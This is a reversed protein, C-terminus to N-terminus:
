VALALQRVLQTSPKHYGCSWMMWRIRSDMHALSKFYRREGSEIGKAVLRGDALTGFKWTSVTGNPFTRVLTTMPKLTQMLQM